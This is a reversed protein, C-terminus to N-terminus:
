KRGYMEDLIAHLERHPAEEQGVNEGFTMITGDGDSPIGNEAAQMDWCYHGYTFLLVTYIDAWNTVSRM